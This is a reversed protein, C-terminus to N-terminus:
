TSRPLSSIDVKKGLKIQTKDSDRMFANGKQKVHLMTPIFLTPSKELNVSDFLVLYFSRLAAELKM